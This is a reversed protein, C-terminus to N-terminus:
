AALYLIAIILASVLGTKVLSRRVQVGLALYNDFRNDPRNM